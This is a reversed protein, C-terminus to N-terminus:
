LGFLFLLQRGSVESSSNTRGPGGKRHIGACPGPFIPSSRVPVFGRPFPARTPLLPLPLFVRSLAGFDLLFVAGKQTQLQFALPNVQFRCTCLAGRARGAPPEPLAPVHVRAGGRWPTPASAAAEPLTSIDPHPAIPRSVFHGDLGFGAGGPGGRRGVPARAPGRVQGSHEQM